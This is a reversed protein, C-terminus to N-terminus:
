QLFGMLNQKSNRADQADKRFMEAITQDTCQQAYYDLKKAVTDHGGIMHRLNQLELQNLNTMSVVGILNLVNKSEAFYGNINMM